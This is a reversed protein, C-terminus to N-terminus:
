VPMDLAAKRIESRGKASRTESELWAARNIVNEVEDHVLEALVSPELADLEWSEHGYERIYERARSDTVKAPNPPPAYESIQLMNLAVRNVWPHVDFTNLRDEIDRTMDIGSPDHDGFHLIHTQQGLRSRRERLREAARWLSSQSAYGRCSFYPVRYKSCAREFIGALAEKEVWVEVRVPQTEWPDLEFQTAADLLIQRPSEWSPWSSLSRTRDEIADWDLMGALRADSVIAGLRKYARQSNELMDRAVFQYYLQRLTLAYGNAAYETIIDNAAQIVLRSAASFRKAVYEIKAM